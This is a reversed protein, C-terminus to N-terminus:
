VSGCHDVHDVAGTSGSALGGKGKSSGNGTQVDMHCKLTPLVTELYIRLNMAFADPPHHVNVQSQGHEMTVVTPGPNM